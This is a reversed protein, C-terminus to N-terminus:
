MRSSVDSNNNAFEGRPRIIRNGVDGADSNAVSGDYFTLINSGANRGNNRCVAIEIGIRNGGPNM